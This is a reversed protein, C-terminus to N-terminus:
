PLTDTQYHYQAFARTSELTGLYYFKSITAVPLNNANYTIEYVINEPDEFGHGNGIVNNASCFEGSNFRIPYIVSCVAMARCVPLTAAKLPNTKNDHVYSDGSPDGPNNIYLMNNNPAYGAQLSQTYYEGVHTAFYIKTATLLGEANLEMECRDMYDYCEPCEPDNPFIPPYSYIYKNAVADYVLPQGNCSTLRNSSDYTFTSPNNGTIQTLNNNSDYFFTQTTQGLRNVIRKLLGNPYFYLRQELTQGPFFVVKALKMPDAKPNNPRPRSADGSTAPLVINNEYESCSITLLFLMLLWTIKRM